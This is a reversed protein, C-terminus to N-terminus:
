GGGSKGTMSKVNGRLFEETEVKVQNGSLPERKLVRKGGDSEKLVM